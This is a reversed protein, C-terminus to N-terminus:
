KQIGSVTKTIISEEGAEVVTSEQGADGSASTLRLLGIAGVTGDLLLREVLLLTSLAADAAEAVSEFWTFVAGEETRRGVKGKAATLAMSSSSEGADSVMM